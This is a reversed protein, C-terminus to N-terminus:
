ALRDGSPGAAAIAEVGAREDDFAFRDTRHLRRASTGTEPVDGRQSAGTVPRRARDRELQAADDPHDGRDRDADARREEADRDHEPHRGRVSEQERDTYRDGRHSGPGPTSAAHAASL